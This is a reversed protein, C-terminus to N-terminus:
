FYNIHLSSMSGEISKSILDAVPIHIEPYLSCSFLLIKQFERFVISMEITLFYFNLSPICILVEAFFNRIGTMALTLPAIEM